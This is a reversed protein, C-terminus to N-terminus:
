ALTAAILYVPDGVRIAGPKAVSAYVGMLNDQEQAITRLIRPDQVATDPHLNPMMCRADGRTITIIPARDGDGIMIRGGVWTQEDPSPSDTTNIILNQRFRRPDVPSGIREALRQVAHTTMLSIPEADHASKLHVAYIPQNRASERLQGKLEEMLEDSFVDLERGDPTTVTASSNDPDAPDVLTARYLLMRPVERATLWPFRSHNRGQIFAFRRDGAIGQFRVKAETLAEARMSKVPYRNLSDIIGVPIIRERLETQRRVLETM